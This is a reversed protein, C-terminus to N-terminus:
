KTLYSEIVKDVIPGVRIEGNIVATPTGRIGIKQGLALDEEM